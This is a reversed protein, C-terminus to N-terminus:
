FLSANEPKGMYWDILKITDDFGIGFVAYYGLRNLDILVQAQERIHSDAVLQGKNPGRTVRITTGDKKLEIFLGCYHHTEGDKGKIVAPHAIFMDPWAKGSQLAKRVGRQTKSLYAGAAYDSFFHAHPYHLRIYRAVMKQLSEEHKQVKPIYRGNAAWGTKYPYTM